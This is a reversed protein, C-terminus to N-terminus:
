KEAQEAATATAREGDQVQQLRKITAALVDQVGTTDGGTGDIKVRVNVNGSRAFAYISDKSLGPNVVLVSEEGVKKKLAEEKDSEKGRWAAYASTSNEPSDYLCIGIDMMNNTSGNYTFWASGGRVWGKSATTSDSSTCYTGDSTIRKGKYPEWGSLVEGAGPLAQAIESQGLQKTIPKDAEERSGDSSCSTLAAIGLLVVLAATGKRSM